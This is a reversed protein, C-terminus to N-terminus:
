SVIDDLEELEKIGADTDFLGEFLPHDPLDTHPPDLLLVGGGRGLELDPFADCGFDPM